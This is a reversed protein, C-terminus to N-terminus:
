FNDTVSGQTKQAHPIDEQQARKEPVIELQLYWFPPMLRAHMEVQETECANGSANDQISDKQTSIPSPAQSVSTLLCVYVLGILLDKGIAEGARSLFLCWCTM